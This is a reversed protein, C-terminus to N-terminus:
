CFIIKETYNWHHQVKETHNETGYEVYFDLLLMGIISHISKPSTYEWEPTFQAMTQM